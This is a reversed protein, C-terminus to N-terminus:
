ILKGYVFDVAIILKGDMDDTRGSRGQPGLVFIIM